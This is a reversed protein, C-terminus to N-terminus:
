CKKARWKKVRKRQAVLKQYFIIHSKVIRKRAFEEALLEAQSKPKLDSSKVPLTKTKEKFAFFKKFNTLQKNFM